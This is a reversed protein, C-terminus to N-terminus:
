RRRASGSREISPTWSASSAALAREEAGKPKTTATGTVIEPRLWVPWGHRDAPPAPLSKANLYAVYGPMAEPFTRLVCALLVTAGFARDLRRYDPGLEKGPPLARLWDLLRTDEAPKEFLNASVAYRFSEHNVNEYASLRHEDLETRNRFHIVSGGVPLLAEPALWQAGDSLAPASHPVRDTAVEILVPYSGPDSSDTVAAVAPGTARGGIVIRGPALRLLDDYYKEYTDAPAVLGSSLVELLNQRNTLFYLTSPIPVGQDTKASALTLQQESDSM